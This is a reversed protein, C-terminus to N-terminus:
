SRAQERAAETDPFVFREDDAHAARDAGARGPSATVTAHPRTYLVVSGDGELFGSRLVLDARADLGEYSFDTVVDPAHAAASSPDFVRFYTVKRGAYSGRATVVSLASVDAAPPPSEAALARLIAQTPRRLGPKRLFDFM